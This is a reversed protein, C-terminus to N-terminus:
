ANMKEATGVPRYRAKPIGTAKFSRCKPDLRVWVAVKGAITKRHRSAGLSPSERDHGHGESQSSTTCNTITKRDCRTWLAM